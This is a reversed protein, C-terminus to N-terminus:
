LYIQREKWLIGYHRKKSYNERETLYGPYCRLITFGNFLIYKDYDQHGMVIHKTDLKNREEDNFYTALLKPGTPELFCKGYFKTKVNIVIQNIAKLLIENNPKCVMLANYIGVKDNDLVWHEQEILNIFKFNNVPIYKIDLYIGGLKYLICYRWLDAKYAGPILRDYANLVEITFHSKIFERCDNDDYLYHEFRPNTKKLHEVRNNMHVPLDKTHWTQFIKLPIIPKYNQKLIYPKKYIKLLLQKYNGNIM